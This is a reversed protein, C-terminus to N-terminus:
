ATTYSVHHQMAWYPVAYSLLTWRLEIPHLTAWNPHQIAWCPADWSLLACRLKTPVAYSLLTGWPETLHPMAGFTCCLESPPYGLLSCWLEVPHLAAWYPKNYSLLICTCSQATCCLEPPATYSLSYLPALFFICHLETPHLTAWSMAARLKATHLTVWPHLM